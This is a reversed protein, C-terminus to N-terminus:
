RHSKPLVPSTQHLLSMCPFSHRREGLLQCGLKYLVENMWLTQGERAGLRKRCGCCYGWQPAQRERCGGQSWGARCVNPKASERERMYLSVGFTIIWLSDLVQRQPQPWLSMPTNDFMAVPDSVKFNLEASSIPSMSKWDGTAATSKRTM